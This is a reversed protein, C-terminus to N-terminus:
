ETGRGVLARMQDLWGGRRDGLDVSRLLTEAEPELLHNERTRLESLVIALALTHRIYWGALDVQLPQRTRVALVCLFRQPTERTAPINLDLGFATFIEASAIRRSTKREPSYQRNTTISVAVIPIFRAAM